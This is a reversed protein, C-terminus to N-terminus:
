RRSRCHTRVRVRERRKKQVESWGEEECVEGSLRGHDESARPGEVKDPVGLRDSVLLSQLRSEDEDKQVEGRTAMWAAEKGEKAFSRRRREGVLASQERLQQEWGRSRSCVCQQSRLGYYPARWGRLWSSGVCTKGGRAICEERSLGAGGDREACLPVCPYRKSRFSNTSLSGM